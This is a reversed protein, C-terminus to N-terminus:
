FGLLLSLSLRASLSVRSVLGPERVARRVTWLRSDGRASRVFSTKSKNNKEQLAHTNKWGIIISVPTHTLTYQIVIAVAISLGGFIFISIQMEPKTTPHSFFRWIGKQTVKDPDGVAMAGSYLFRRFITGFICKCEAGKETLTWIEGNGDPWKKKHTRTGYDRVLRSWTAM